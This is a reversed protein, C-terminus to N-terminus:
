QTFSLAGSNPGACGAVTRETASACHVTEGAEDGTATSCGGAGGSRGRLTSLSIHSGPEACVTTNRQTEQEAGHHSEVCSNRTGTLQPENPGIVVDCNAWM